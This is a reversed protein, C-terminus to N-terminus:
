KLWVPEGKEAEGGAGRPRGMFPLLSIDGEARVREAMRWGGDDKGDEGM